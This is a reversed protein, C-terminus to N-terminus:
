LTNIRCANLQDYIYQLNITQIFQELAICDEVDEENLEKGNFFSSM